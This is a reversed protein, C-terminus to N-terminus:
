RANRAASKWANHRRPAPSLAAILPLGAFAAAVHKLTHGSLLQGSAEYIAHDNAEFLKALAYALLVLLWQVPQSGPRVARMALALLLLAIGGFQAVAWPLVNGTLLCALAGAPALVLVACALAAGARDSVREAMVLGLVGAFALGMTARDIALGVDDPAHHYWGSGVATALLGIFALRAIARHVASMTPPPAQRLVALGWVGVIAFPLNSLVDLAKPIGWLVRQDAFDHAHPPQALAPGWLALGLLAACALLLLTETKTLSLIRM